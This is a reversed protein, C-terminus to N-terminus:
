DDNDDNGLQQQASAAQESENLRALGQVMQFADNRSTGKERLVIYAALAEAYQKGEQRTSFLQNMGTMLDMLSDQVGEKRLMEQAKVTQDDM